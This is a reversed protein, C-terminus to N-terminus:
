KGKDLVRLIDRALDTAHDDWEKAVPVWRTLRRAKRLWRKLHNVAPGSADAGCTACCGDEDIAVNPGCQVCFTM